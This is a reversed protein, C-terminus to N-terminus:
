LPGRLEDPARKFPLPLMATASGGTVSEDLSAMAEGVANGIQGSDDDGTSMKRCGAAATITMAIAMALKSGRRSIM